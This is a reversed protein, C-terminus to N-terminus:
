RMLPFQARPTEGHSSMSHVPRPRHQFRDISVRHLLAIEEGVNNETFEKLTSHSGKTRSRITFGRRNAYILLHREVGSFDPGIAIAWLDEDKLQM